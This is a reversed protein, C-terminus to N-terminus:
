LQFEFEKEVEEVWLLYVLFFAFVSLCAFLCTFCTVDGVVVVEVEEEKKRGFFIYTFEKQKNNSDNDDDVNKELSSVECIHFPRRKKRKVRVCVYVYMCM